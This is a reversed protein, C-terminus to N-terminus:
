ASSISSCRVLGPPRATAWISSSALGGCSTLSSRLSSGTLSRRQISGDLSFLGGKVRGEPGSTFFHSDPKPSLAQLAPPLEYKTWWTPRAAIDEEYRRAALRDLLACVDLLYWDRPAPTEKRADQVAKVIATNYQDIASDIARAEQESIHPDESPDFDRDAIWPRTYYPFYRSGPRVKDKGVGRAVPAITVHPVTAWIVHRARIKKVASVVERLEEDFHVPDWVTFSAKKAPDKFDPATSWVVELRVVTGLANNAGLFVILTEIGDGNGDEISGEAGLAAAAELPTLAGNNKDRASNLVRLAARENANEVIQRFLEDKPKTILAALNTANRYLTDRLDWGYVALNHKIGVENPVTSGPGREWWDEIEDMQHRLDFLALPIEWWNLQEGYERELHRIIFEINIPLGGYGQYRPRRFYDDWGMEWAIMMPYSIDTNYIAGSQFGHTLSDGITVLRHRPTGKRTVSVAIGLTPDTVQPPAEAVVNVSRPTKSDRMEDTVGNSM